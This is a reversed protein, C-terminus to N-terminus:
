SQVGAPMGCTWCSDPLVPEEVGRGTGHCMPCREPSPIPGRVDCVYMPQRRHLASWALAEHKTLALDREEEQPVLHAALIVANGFVPTGLYTPGIAWVSFPLGQAIGDENCWMQIARRRKRDYALTIREVYGGCLEQLHAFGAVQVPEVVVGPRFIIGLKQEKM